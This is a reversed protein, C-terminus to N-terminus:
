LHRNFVGCLELFNQEEEEDDKNFQCQKIMQDNYVLAREKAERMREIAKSIKQAHISSLNRMRDAEKNQSPKSRPSEAAFNTYKFEDKGKSHVLPSDTIAINQSSLSTSFNVRRGKKTTESISVLQKSQSCQTSETPEDIDQIFNKHIPGDKQEQGAPSQLNGTKNAEFLSSFRIPQQQKHTPSKAFKNQQFEPQKFFEKQTSVFSRKQQNNQNGPSKSFVVELQHTPSSPLTEPMKRHSNIRLFRVGPQKQNSLSIAAKQAKPHNAPDLFEDPSIKM